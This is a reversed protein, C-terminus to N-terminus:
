TILIKLCKWGTQIVHRWLLNSGYFIWDLNSLRCLSSLNVFFFSHTIRNLKSTSYVISDCCGVATHGANAMERARDRARRGPRTLWRGTSGAYSGPNGMEVKIMLCLIATLNKWILTEDAVKALSTHVAPSNYWYTAVKTRSWFNGFWPCNGKQRRRRACYSKKM